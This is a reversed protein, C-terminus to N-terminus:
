RIFRITLPYRYSEGDNAKVAAVITLILGILLVIVILAFGIVLLILLASVITYITLSIQFNVAEKGAEDIFPDEKRKILWFVLPLFINAFPFGSYGALGGAHCLM